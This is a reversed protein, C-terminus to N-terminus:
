RGFTAAGPTRDVAALRTREVSRAWSEPLIPWRELMQAHRIHRTNEGKAYILRREDNSSSMGLAQAVQDLDMTSAPTEAPAAEVQRPRTM